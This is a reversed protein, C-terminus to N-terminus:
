EHREEKEGKDIDETERNRMASYVMGFLAPFV